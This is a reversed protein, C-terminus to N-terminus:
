KMILSIFTPYTYEVIIATLNPCSSDWTVFIYYTHDSNSIPISTIFTVPVFGISPSPPTLDEIITETANFNNRMIYLHTWNEEYSQDIYITVKSLTVNDPLHLPLINNYNGCPITPGRSTPYFDQPGFTYSGHGPAASLNIGFLSLLGVLVFAFSIRLPNILM